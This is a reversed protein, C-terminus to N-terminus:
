ECVTVCMCQLRDTSIATIHDFRTRGYVVRASVNLATQIRDLQYRQLGVLIRNCYDVRAVILANVFYIVATTMLMTTLSARICVYVWVCSCVCWVCACARRMCARVSVSQLFETRVACEAVFQVSQGVASIPVCASICRLM